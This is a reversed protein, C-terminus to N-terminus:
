KPRSTMRPMRGDSKSSARAPRGPRAAAHRDGGVDGLLEAALDVDEEGDVGRRDCCALMMSLAPPRWVVVVGGDGSAPPLDSHVARTAARLWTRGPWGPRARRPCWSGATRRGPCRGTWRAGPPRLRTPPGPRGSPAGLRAPAPRPPHAPIRRRALAQALPSEYVGPRRGARRHAPRARRRAGGRGPRGRGPELVAPDETWSLLTKGGREVYLVLQGGSLVVLAGAKRGPRHGGPAEEPRAPWPLAAGFPNAPDAAALVDRGPRADEGAAAPGPRRRALRAPARPARAARLRPPRTRPWRGCGTWRAPCRSSPARGPGRRLLGPPM